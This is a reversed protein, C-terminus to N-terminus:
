EHSIMRAIRSGEAHMRPEVDGAGLEGEIEYRNALAATLRDVPEAM